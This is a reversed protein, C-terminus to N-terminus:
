PEYKCGSVTIEVANIYSPSFRFRIVHDFLDLSPCARRIWVKVVFFFLLSKAFMYFVLVRVEVDHVCGTLILLCLRFFARGISTMQRAQDANVGFDTHICGYGRVTLSFRASYSNSGM